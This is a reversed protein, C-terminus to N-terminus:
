WSTFRMVARSNRFNGDLPWLFAGDGEPCQPKKTAELHVEPSDGLRGHGTSNSSNADRM